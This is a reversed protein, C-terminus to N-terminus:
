IRAWKQSTEEKISQGSFKVRNHPLIDETEEVKVVADAGEPVAAGTMIKSAQGRLVKKTPM